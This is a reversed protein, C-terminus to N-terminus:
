YLIICKSGSSIYGILKELCFYGRSICENYLMFQKSILKVVSSLSLSYYSYIEM